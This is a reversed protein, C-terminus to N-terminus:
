SAAAPQTAKLRLYKALSKKRLDLHFKAVAAKYDDYDPFNEPKPVRYWVTKHDQEGRRIEILGQCHGLICVVVDRVWAAADLVAKKRKISLTPLQIVYRTAQQRALTCTEM